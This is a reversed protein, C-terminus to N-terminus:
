QQIEQNKKRGVSHPVTFSSATAIHIFYYKMELRFLQVECCFVLNSLIEFWKQEIQNLQTM